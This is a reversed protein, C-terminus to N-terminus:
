PDSRLDELFSLIQSTMKANIPEINIQAEVNPTEKQEELEDEDREDNDVGEAEYAEAPDVDMM